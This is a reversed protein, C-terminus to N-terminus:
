SGSNISNDIKLSSLRALWGSVDQNPHSSATITDFLYSTFLPVRIFDSKEPLMCIINASTLALTQAELESLATIYLLYNVIGWCSDLVCM